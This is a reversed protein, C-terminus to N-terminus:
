MALFRIVALFWFTAVVGKDDQLTELQSGLTGLRIGGSPSDAAVVGAGRAM